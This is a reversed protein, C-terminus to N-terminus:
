KSCNLKVDKIICQDLKENAIRKADYNNHAIVKIEEWSGSSLQYYRVCYVDEVQNDKSM